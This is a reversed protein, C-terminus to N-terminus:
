GFLNLETTEFKETKEAKSVKKKIVKEKQEQIAKEMALRKAEAIDEEDLEINSSLEKKADIKFDEIAERMAQEKAKAKDEESLEVSQNIVVKGSIPKIDKIDDEVYYHVAWGYVEEDSYGACGGDKACKMIYNCCEEISKNPKKYNEAFLQDEAARKELYNKINETFNKSPKM